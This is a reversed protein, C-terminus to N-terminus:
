ILRGYSFTRDIEPINVWIVNNYPIYIGMIDWCIAMIYVLQLAWGEWQRDGHIQHTQCTSGGKFGYQIIYIYIYIYSIVHYLRHIYRYQQLIYVYLIFVIYIICYMYIYIYMYWWLTIHIYIYIHIYLLNIIYTYIYLIWIDPYILM